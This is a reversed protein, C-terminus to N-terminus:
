EVEVLRKQIELDDEVFAQVAKDIGRDATFGLAEARAAHLARPWGSVISQIQQDPEWRIRAFASDGGARRTAEAM